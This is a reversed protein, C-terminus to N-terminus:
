KNEDRDVMRKAVVLNGGARLAYMAYLENLESLLREKVEPAASGDLGTSGCVMARYLLNCYRPNRDGSARYAQIYYERALSYQKLSEYIMGIIKLVIVKEFQYPSNAAYTVNLRGLLLFFPELANMPSNLQSLFERKWKDLLLGRLGINETTTNRQYECFDCTCRFGFRECLQTRMALSFEQLCYAATIEDGARIDTAAFVMLSEGAICPITNPVCSHNFMSARSWVGSIEPKEFQPFDNVPDSIRPIPQPKFANFHVASQVFLHDVPLKAEGEISPKEIDGAHLNYVRRAFDCDDMMRQVLSYISLAHSEINNRQWREDLNYIGVSSRSEVVALGRDCLLLTGKSIDHTAVVGRGKGAVEVVEIPGVYDAYEEGGLASNMKARERNEADIEYFDFVGQAEQMRRRVKGLMKVVEKVGPFEGGLEKWMGRAEDYRQLRTL